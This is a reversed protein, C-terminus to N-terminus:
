ILGLSADGDNTNLKKHYDSTEMSLWIILTQNSLVRTKKWIGLVDIRYLQVHASMHNLVNSDIISRFKLLEITRNTCLSNWFKMM